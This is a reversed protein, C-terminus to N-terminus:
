GVLVRFALVILAVGTAAELLRRARPRAFVRRVSGFALAWLSHCALAITIHVAALAAFLGAPADAPLFSPVVVLYFTAIAPNLLNVTFGQRFSAGREHPEGANADRVTTLLPLGGDAHGVVRYMSRLGLSALYIAGCVRLTAMALPWRAFVVALGFGAATAHSTNGVAAGIGAAFGALRGGILTHRVVVATTSGPTLILVATFSVYAVLLPDMAQVIAFSPGDVLLPLQQQLVTTVTFLNV